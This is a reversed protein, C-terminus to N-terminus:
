DMGDQASAQKAVAMAAEPQLLLSRSHWHVVPLVEMVLETM